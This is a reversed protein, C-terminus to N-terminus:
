RRREREAQRTDGESPSGTKGLRVSEYLGGMRLTNRLANPLESDLLEAVMSMRIEEELLNFFGRQDLDNAALWEDLEDSHLLSHRLRVQTIRDVVQNDDITCGQRRSEEVALIRLIAEQYTQTRLRVDGQGLWQDIAQREVERSHGDALLRIAGVSRVLQAFLATYEFEFNAPPAPNEAVRAVEHLVARADSAKQDVRGDSLWIQLNDLTTSDIGLKRARRIVMDYTRDPFYASKAISELVEQVSENIIGVDKAFRLTIRINVMPESSPRYGSEASAHTVAVEDDDLLIGKRYADFIWGVGIMGFRALEAARLAGMSAGGVVPIGQHMAWLIEKHWVGPTDHFRGDILGIASPMERAIRFVDGQAAPPLYVANLIHRAEELPLSPGLFVAIM